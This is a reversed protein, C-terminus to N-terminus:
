VEVPFGDQPRALTVQPQHSSQPGVSGVELRGQTEFPLLEAWLGLGNTVSCAWGSLVLRWCHRRTASKGETLSFLKM